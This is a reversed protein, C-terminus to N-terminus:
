KLIAKTVGKKTQFEVNKAKCSIHYKTVDNGDDGKVIDTSSFAKCRIEIEDVLHQADGVLLRWKKDSKEPFNTNYRVRVIFKKMM